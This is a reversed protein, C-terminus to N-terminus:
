GCYRDALDPHRYVQATLQLQAKQYEFEPDDDFDTRSYIYFTNWGFRSEM